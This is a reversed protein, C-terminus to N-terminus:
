RLYLFESANFLGWCVTALGHEKAVAVCAALEEARPPRSLVAEFALTVQESADQSQVALRAAFQDSQRVVFGDNMLALAQMPTVTPRRKPTTVSPSPCDLADLFPSRGTIVHMRYISRRNYAPEDKDFIHYFFTNLRTTTFAQFSPGGISRNLSGSLALMSDRAVEGEIARAPFRWLLRNDADVESAKTAVEPAAQWSQRYAASTVILRQM